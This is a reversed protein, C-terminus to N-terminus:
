ETDGGKEARLIKVAIKFVEGAREWDDDKVDIGEAELTELYLQEEETTELYIGARIFCHLAISMAAIGKMVETETFEDFPKRTHLDGAVERASELIEPITPIEKKTM